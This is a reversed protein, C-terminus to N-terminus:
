VHTHVSYALRDEEGGREAGGDQRKRNMVGGRGSRVWRPQLCAPVRGSTTEVQREFVAHGSRAYM